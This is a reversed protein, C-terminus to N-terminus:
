QVPPGTKFGTISVLKRSLQALTEPAGARASLIDHVAQYYAKSVEGYKAGTITSPRAVWSDQDADCLRAAVPMRQILNPDSYLREITPMYGGDLARRLQVKSGALIAALQASERPHSSRRAVALHFGGLVNARGRPGSPLVTVDFRGHIPSDEAHAPSLAGSWNRVFAAKGSRFVAMSDAENYALVGKPSITGVWGAAKRLAAVAAPNNVSVSGNKEIIRGGGYSAQWELADCTLGEYAAGQWVYGWFDRNGGAREGRQIRAAMSELEDWTSPPKRYGYKKLLDTRYYLVGLDLYFPLGILRGGVTDNQVLTSFHGKLGGVIYPALDLLDAALAGTWIVDVVYIDPPNIPKRLLMVSQTLQDVSDGWAPVIGVQIGTSRTYEDIVNRKLFDASDLGLGVLTLAPPESSRKICASACLIV